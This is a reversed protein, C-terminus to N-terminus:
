FFTDDNWTAFEFVCLAILAHFLFQAFDLKILL